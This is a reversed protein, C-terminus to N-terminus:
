RNTLLVADQVTSGFIEYNLDANDDSLLKANSITLAKSLLDVDPLPGEDGSNEELDDLMYDDLAPFTHLSDNLHQSSTSRQSGFEEISLTSENLHQSSTSPQSSFEGISLTSENLHQSSTIPQSSFEGISVTSENLHQSSLSRQSIFEEITEHSSTSPQSSMSQSVAVSALHILASGKEQLYQQLPVAAPVMETLSPTEGQSFGESQHSVDDPVVATPTSEEGETEGQRNFQTWHLSQAWDDEEFDDPKAPNEEDSM